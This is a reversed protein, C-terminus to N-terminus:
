EFLVRKDVLLFLV